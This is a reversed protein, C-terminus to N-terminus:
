RDLRRVAAALDVYYRGAIRCAGSLQGQRALTRVYDPNLRVVYAFEKIPLLEARRAALIQARQEHETM